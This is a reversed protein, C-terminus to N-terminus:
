HYFFEEVVDAKDQSSYRKSMDRTGGGAGELMRNQDTVKDPDLM